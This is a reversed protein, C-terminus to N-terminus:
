LPCVPPVEPDAFGWVCWQQMNTWNAAMEKPRYCWRHQFLATTLSRLDKRHAKGQVCGLLASADSMSVRLMRVHDYVRLAAHLTADSQNPQLSLRPGDSGPVFEHKM